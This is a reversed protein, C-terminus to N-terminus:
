IKPLVFNVSTGQDKKIIIGTITSSYYGEKGAAVTYIGSKLSLNYEGNENTYTVYVPIPMVEADSTNYEFAKIPPKYGDWATIRANELPYSEYTEVGVVKGYLWGQDQPIKDLIFSVQKEEGTNIRFPGKIETKYGSKSASIKYYGTIVPLEYYGNDDTYTVYSVSASLEPKREISSTDADIIPYVWASVRANRLPSIAQVNGSGHKEFVRGYFFGQQPVYKELIFDVKLGRFNRTWINLGITFPGKTETKYNNKSATVTYVGPRLILSYEGKENTHTVYVNKSYSSNIEKDTLTIPPPYRMITVRANELSIALTGSDSDRYEGFVRGYIRFARILQVPTSVNYAEISLEEAMPIKKLYSLKEKSAYLINSEIQNANSAVVFTASLLMTFVLTIILIKKNIKKMKLDGKCFKHLTVIM